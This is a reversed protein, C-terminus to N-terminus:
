ADGYRHLPMRGIIKKLRQPDAVTATMNIKVWGPAITNVLINEQAWEVALGHTMGM